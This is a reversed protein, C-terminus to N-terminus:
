KIINQPDQVNLKGARLHKQIKNMTLTMRKQEREHKDRLVKQLEVESCKLKLKTNDGKLRKITKKLATIRDNIRLYVTEPVFRDNVNTPFHNRQLKKLSVLLKRLFNQYKENTSVNIINDVVQLMTEPTTGITMGKVNSQTFVPM